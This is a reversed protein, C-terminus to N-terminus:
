LEDERADLGPSTLKHKGEPAHSESLTKLTTPWARVKLESGQAIAPCQTVLWTVINFMCSRNIIDARGFAEKLNNTFVAYLFSCDDLPAGDELYRRAAERVHEPLLAYDIKGTLVSM